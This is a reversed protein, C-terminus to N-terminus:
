VLQGLPRRGLRQSLERRWPGERTGLKFDGSSELQGGWYYRNWLGNERGDVYAGEAKKSGNQYYELFSGNRTTKNYEAVIRLQGNPHSWTRLSTHPRMALQGLGVVGAVFLVAVAAASAAQLRRKRAFARQESATLERGTGLPTGASFSSSPFVPSM